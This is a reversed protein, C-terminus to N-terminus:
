SNFYKKKDNIQERTPRSNKFVELKTPETLAFTFPDYLALAKEAM